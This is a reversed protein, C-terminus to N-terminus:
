EEASNQRRMWRMLERTEVTFYNDFFLSRTAADADGAGTKVFADAGLSDTFPAEWGVLSFEHKTVLHGILRHWMQTFESTAHTAEGVVVRAGRVLADLRDFDREDHSM